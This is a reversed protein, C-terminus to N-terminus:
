GIRIETIQINMINLRDLEALLDKATVGRLKCAERSRSAVCICLVLCKEVPLSLM